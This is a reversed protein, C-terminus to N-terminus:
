HNKIYIEIFDFLNQKFVDIMKLIFNKNSNFLFFTKNRKESLFKELNEATKPASKQFSFEARAFVM